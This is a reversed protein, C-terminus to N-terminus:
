IPGHHHAVRNRIRGVIELNKLLPVSILGLAYAMQYCQSFSGLQRDPAFLRDTNTSDNAGNPPLMRSQLLSMLAQELFATSILISAVESQDKLQSRFYVSHQKDLEKATMPKRSM